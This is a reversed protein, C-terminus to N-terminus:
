MSFHRFNNVFQIYAVSASDFCYQIKLKRESRVFTVKGTSMERVAKMGLRFVFLNLM